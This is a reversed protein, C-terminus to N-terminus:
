YLLTTWKDAEGVQQPVALAGVGRAAMAEFFPIGTTAGLPGAETNTETTLITVDHLAMQAAFTGTGGGRGARHQLFAPFLSLLVTSCTVTSNM